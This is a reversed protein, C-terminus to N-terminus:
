KQILASIEEEFRKKSFKQSTLIAKRSLESILKQSGILSITYKKLEEMSDWLYGNKANEVIEKQGGKNIVIPVCGAAMAEVTSIGFHEMRTPDTEGFGAAHWYIISEGYLKKLDSLSVNPHFYVEYGKGEKKLENIYEQDGELAGGALHLSWGKIQNSLLRFTDILIQHKKDRLFAFFRGVSLIQKKKKLPKLLEVSVPPYIVKLKVPWSDHIFDATFQSNCIALKWSSMKFKEWLNTNTNKFPVQFHLINKKATSYFISGDTLYILYDFQKLFFLREFLSSGKGLPSKIFIVNSLDLAHFKRIRDKINEIGINILNNDMLIFVQHNKSLIEAITLFYKEGGGATDLYPSYLAIKM